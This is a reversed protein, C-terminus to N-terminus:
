FGFVSDDNMTNRTRTILKNSSPGQTPYDADVTNLVDANDEIVDYARDRYLSSTANVRTEYNFFLWYISCMFEVGVGTVMLIWTTDPTSHTPYDRNRCQPHDPVSGNTLNNCQAYVKIEYCLTFLLFGFNAVVLAMHFFELISMRPKARYLWSFGVVWMMMAAAIGYRWSTLFEYPHKEQEANLRLGGALGFILLTSAAFSLVMAVTIITFSQSIRTRFRQVRGPM